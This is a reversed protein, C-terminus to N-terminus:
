LFFKNIILKMNDAEKDSKLQAYKLRIHLRVTIQICYM